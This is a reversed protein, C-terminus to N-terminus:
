AGSERLLPVSAVIHEGLARYAEFQEEGFFQDATSEHPFTPNEAAYTRLTLGEDGTLSAKLYVLTGEETPSYRIRGVAYHAASDRGTRAQIPHIDVQVEVGLDIRAYRIATSLSTLTLGGDEEGDVAIILSCRRRLLEYIGLNEIHGGDSANVYTSEANLLRLAERALYTPGPAIAYARETAGALLKRPNPLWYGMRLNLMTMLVTMAPNTLTGMAPNAVGGSIAMATGLNLTRDLREIDPTPCWGTHESGVFHKSFLLFDGQRGRLNPDTSGVLNLTANILHYPAFAGREDDGGGLQSLKTADGGTGRGATNGLFVRSLRDRYYGHPSILNVNLYRANVLLLLVIIGGLVAGGPGVFAGPTRIHLTGANLVLTAIPDSPHKGGDPLAVWVTVGDALPIASRYREVQLNAAGFGPAGTARLRAELAEGMPVAGESMPLGDLLAAPDAPVDHSGVQTLCLYVFLAFMGAPALLGLLAVGALRLLSRGAHSRVALGLLGGVGLAGLGFAVREERVLQSADAFQERLLASMQAESHTVAEDLIYWFPLAVLSVLVLGLAIRLARELLERRALPTSHRRLFPYGGVLGLLVGMALALPWRSPGSPIDIGLLLQVAPLLVEYIMSTGVVGVLLAPLWSAATLLLGRLYVAPMALADFAGGVRLYNSSNRLHRLAPPEVTGAGMRLPFADPASSHEPGRGNLLHSLAAGLYGGGSVTSLYDTRALIGRQALAQVVGLSFAASRIGGGSLALGTLGLAASPAAPADSRVPAAPQGVLARRRQIEALEKPFVTTSFASDAM